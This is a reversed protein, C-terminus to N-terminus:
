PVRGRARDGRMAQWAEFGPSLAVREDDHEIERCAFYHRVFQARVRCDFYRLVARPHKQV